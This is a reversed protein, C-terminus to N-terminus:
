GLTTMTVITYWFAEPISTFQTGDVNKEAYFMVTAFIVIAMSLSFLLFGLESACSRLTHGLIRLGASHRSFKFVRFVRFVRLTVFAGSLDKNETIAFGIYYPLIAVLDILSMASSVYNCRNPSAYLRLLYEATFITVSATDLCFLEMAYQEGCSKGDIDDAPLPEDDAGSGGVGDGGCPITEIINALVSAAIFFGTVYYFVLAPVSEHPDEFARWMRDRLPVSRRAAIDRQDSPKSHQSLGGDVVVHAVLAQNDDNKEANERQRDKYEEYCCEAVSDCDIGFYALEADFAAVCEQRPYHVRGTRYFALIYRFLSPDRDFRYEDTDADYFYSKEDSGLLTNPYRDVSHRWTEFHQGSVNIRMRNDPPISTVGTVTRTSGDIFHMLPPPPFVDATVPIWGFATGRVLPLWSVLSAM